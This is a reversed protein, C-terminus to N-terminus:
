FIIACTGKLQPYSMTSPMFSQQPIYHQALSGLLPCIKINRMGQGVQGKCVAGTDYFSHLRLINSKQELSYQRYSTTIRKSWLSELNTVSLRYFSPVQGLGPSHQGQSVTSELQSMADWLKDLVPWFDEIDSWFFIVFGPMKSQSTESGTFLKYEGTEKWIVGYYYIQSLDIQSPGMTSFCHCCVLRTLRFKPGNQHQTITDTVVLVFFIFLRSLIEAFNPAFLARNLLSTYIGSFLKQGRKLCVLFVQSEM